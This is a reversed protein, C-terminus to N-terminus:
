GGHRRSEKQREHCSGDSKAHDPANQIGPLMGAVGATQATTRNGGVGAVPQADAVQLLSQARVLLLNDGLQDLTANISHGDALASVHRGEANLHQISLVDKRYLWLIDLSNQGRLELIKGQALRPPVRKM